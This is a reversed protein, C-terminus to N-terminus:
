AISPPSISARRGNRRRYQRGTEHRGNQSTQEHPKRWNPRLSDCRRRKALDRAYLPWTYIPVLDHAFHAFWDLDAHAAVARRGGTEAFRQFEDAVFQLGLEAVADVDFIDPVDHIEAELGLVNQPQDLVAHEREAILRRAIQGVAHRFQAEDIQREQEGVVRLRARAMSPSSPANRTRLVSSRM